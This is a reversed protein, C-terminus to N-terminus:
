PKSHIAAFITCTSVEFMAALQKQSYKKTAYKAQVDRTQLPTLAKPKRLKVGAVKLWFYATAASVGFRKAADVATINTTKYTSILADRTIKPYPEKGPLRVKSDGKPKGANAYILTTMRGMVTSRVLDMDKLVEICDTITLKEVDLKAFM